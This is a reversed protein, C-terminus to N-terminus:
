CTFQRTQFAAQVNKRNRQAKCLGVETHTQQPTYMQARQHSSHINGVRSHDKETFFSPSWMTHFHGEWVIAERLDSSIYKRRPMKNVCVQVRCVQLSGSGWSKHPHDCKSWYILATFKLLLLKLSLISKKLSLKVKNSRSSFTLPGSYCIDNGSHRYTTLVFLTM